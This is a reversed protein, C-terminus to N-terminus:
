LMRSKGKDAERHGMRADAEEEELMRLKLESEQVVLSIQGFTESQSKRFDPIM